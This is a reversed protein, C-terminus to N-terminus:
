SLRSRAIFAILDAESIRMLRGVRCVPLQRQDILRRVTKQSVDLQTAVKAISFLRPLVSAKGSGPPGPRESRV